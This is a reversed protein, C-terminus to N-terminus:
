TRSRISNCDFCRNRFTQMCFVGQGSDQAVQDEEGCRSLGSRCLRTLIGLEAAEWPKWSTTGLCSFFMVLVTWRTLGDIQGMDTSMTYTCLGIVHLPLDYEGVEEGSGCAPKM